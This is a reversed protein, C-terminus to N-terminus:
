QNDALHLHSSALKLPLQFRRSEQRLVLFAQFSELHYGHTRVLGRRPVLAKVSRKLVLADM